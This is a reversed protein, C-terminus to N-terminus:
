QIVFNDENEINMTILKYACSPTMSEWGFNYKCFNGQAQELGEFYRIPTGTVGNATLIAIFRIGYTIYIHSVIISGERSAVFLLELVVFLTSSASIYNAVLGEASHYVLDVDDRLFCVHNLLFKVILVAHYVLRVGVKLLM